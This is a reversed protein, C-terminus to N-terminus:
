VTYSVLAASYDCIQVGFHLVSFAKEQQSAM